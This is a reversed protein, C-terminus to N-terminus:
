WVFTLWSSCLLQPMKLRQVPNKALMRLILVKVQDSLGEPFEVKDRAVKNTFEFLDNSHWPTIGCLMEYLVIGLSWIDATYPEYSKRRLIELATYLPTGSFVTCKEGASVGRICLGFDVLKVTMTHENIIINGPKIDHHAIKRAHCFNVADALQSFIERADEESLTGRADIFDSLTKGQAYETFIFMTSEYKVASFLKVINVHNRVEHLARIEKEICSESSRYLSRNYEIPAHKEEMPIIKVAVRDGSRLNTGLFVKSFAGNGLNKKANIKIDNIVVDVSNKTTSKKNHNDSMLMKIFTNIYISDTTNIKDEGYYEDDSSNGFYDRSYIYDSIDADDGTTQSLCNKSSDAYCYDGNSNSANKDTVTNEGDNSTSTTSESSDMSNGSNNCRKSFNYLEFEKSEKTSHLELLKRQNNKLPDHLSSPSPSTFSITTTTTTTM